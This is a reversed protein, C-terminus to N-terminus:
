SRRLCSMYTAKMTSKHLCTRQSPMTLWHLRKCIQTYEVEYMITDLIPNNSATGIPLVDKDRLHKTVRAFEPGNIDRPIALEMNLSTDNFVDPTFENDAESVCRDNVINDFKQGTKQTQSPEM